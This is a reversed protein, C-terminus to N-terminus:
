QLKDACIQCLSGVSTLITEPLTRSQEIEGDVLGAKEM